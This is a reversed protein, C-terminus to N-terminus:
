RSRWVRFRNDTWLGHAKRLQGDVPLIQQTFASASIDFRGTAPDPILSPPKVLQNTYKPIESPKLINKPSDQEYGAVEQLLGAAANWGLATAGAAALMMKLFHRRSVKM